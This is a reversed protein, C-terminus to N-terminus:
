SLSHVCVVQICGVLFVFFVVLCMRCSFLYSMCVIFIGGLVWPFLNCVPDFHAFNVYTPFSFLNIVFNEFVQTFTEYVVRLVMPLNNDCRDVM